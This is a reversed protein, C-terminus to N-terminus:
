PLTGSSKILNSGDSSRETKCFAITFCCVSFLIDLVTWFGASGEKVLRQMDSDMVNRVMGYGVIGQGCCFRLATFVEFPRHFM